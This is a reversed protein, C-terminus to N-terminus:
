GAVPLKSVPLGARRDRNLGATHRIIKQLTRISSNSDGGGYQHQRPRGCSRCPPRRDISRLIQGPLRRCDSTGDPAHANTDVPHEAEGFMQRRCLAM